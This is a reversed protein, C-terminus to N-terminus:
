YACDLQRTSVTSCPVIQGKEDKVFAQVEVFCIKNYKNLIDSDFLHKSENGPHLVQNTRNLEFTGVTAGTRNNIRIVYGAIDFRGRNQITLNFTLSPASGGLISPQSYSSNMIVFSVGDPCKVSEEINVYFKLWGYVLGAISLGISILLVYSVILSIARKNTVRQLM